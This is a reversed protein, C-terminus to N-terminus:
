TIRRGRKLPHPPLEVELKLHEESPLMQFNSTSPDYYKPAVVATMMLPINTPTPPPGKPRLADIERDRITNNEVQLYRGIETLEGMERELSRLLTDRFTGPALLRSFSMDFHMLEEASVNLEQARRINM